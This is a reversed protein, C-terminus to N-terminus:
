TTSNTLRWVELKNTIITYYDGITLFDSQRLSLDLMFKINDEIFADEISTEPIVYFNKVKM